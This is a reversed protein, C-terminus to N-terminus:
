GRVVKIEVDTWANQQSWRWPNNILNLCSLPGVATVALGRESCLVGAKYSPHALTCTMLGKRGPTLLPWVSATLCINWFLTDASPQHVSSENPFMPQITLVAGWTAGHLHPLLILRTISLSESVLHWSPLPNSDFNAREGWTRTPEVGGDCVRNTVNAWLPPASPRLLEWNRWVNGRTVVALSSWRKGFHALVRLNTSSTCVVAVATITKVKKVEWSSCQCSLHSTTWLGSSGSKRSLHFAGKVTYLELAKWLQKM